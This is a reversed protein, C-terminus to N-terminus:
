RKSAKGQRRIRLTRHINIPLTGIWIRPDKGVYYFYLVVRCLLPAFLLVFFFFFDDDTWVFLKISSIYLRHKSSSIFFLSLQFSSTEM